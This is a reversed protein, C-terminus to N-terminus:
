RDWYLIKFTNAIASRLYIITNAAGDWEDWWDPNIVIWTGAATGGEVFSLRGDADTPPTAGDDVDVIQIEMKQFARPITVPTETNAVVVQTIVRPQRLTARM